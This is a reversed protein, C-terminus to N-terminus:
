LQIEKPVLPRDTPAVLWAVPLEAPRGDKWIRVCVVLTDEVTNNAISLAEGETGYAVAEVVCIKSM